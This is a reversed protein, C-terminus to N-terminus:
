VPPRQHRPKTSTVEILMARVTVRSTRKNLELPSTAITDGYAEPWVAHPIGGRVTLHLIWPAIWEISVVRTMRFM